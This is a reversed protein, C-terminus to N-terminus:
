AVTMGARGNVCSTEALRICGTLVSHNVTETRIDSRRVTMIPKSMGVLCDDVSSGPRVCVGSLGSRVPPRLGAPSGLLRREEM